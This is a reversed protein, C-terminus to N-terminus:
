NDGFYTDTMDVFINKNDHEYAGSYSCLFYAICM